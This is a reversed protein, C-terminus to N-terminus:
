IHIVGGSQLSKCKTAEVPADASPQTRKADCPAIRKNAHCDEQPQIPGTHPRPKDEDGGDQGGVVAYFLQCRRVAEDPEALSQDVEHRRLNVTLFRVLSYISTYFFKLAFIM